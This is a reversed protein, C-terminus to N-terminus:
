SLLHILRCAWEPYVSAFGCAVDVRCPTVDNNIDYKRIIRMSLGEMVNRAEFKGDGPLDLDATVFAFADKHFAMNNGYGTSATGIVTIVKSAAALNSSNQYSGGSIIAPSIIISSLGGSDSAALTTIVFRKLYGYSQKTEPHVAFVGAITIIDGVNLLTAISNGWGSTTLTTTTAYANGSGTIGQNGGGASTIPSGTYAGPTQVPALTNEFATFGGARGMVGDEYQQAIESSSQFLGKVDTSFDVRSQPNITMTRTNDTPALNESLYRGASQYSNYNVTTTTAGAYNAVTQMMQTIFDSEISAVLQSMAPEIFQKSFDNINFTLEYSSFSMDVGYLSVIPLPVSREVSNQVSLSPGRRTTYKTPLRLNLSQGIKAGSKAFREDYQRNTRAIFNSKQHLIRQCERTIELPTLTTNTTM